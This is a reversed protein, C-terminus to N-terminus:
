SKDIEALFQAALKPEGPVNSGRLSYLELFRECADNALGLELGLSRIEIALEKLQKAEPWIVYPLAPTLRDYTGFLGWRGQACQRLCSLLM